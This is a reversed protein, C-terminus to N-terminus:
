NKIFSLVQNGNDKNLKIFYIGDNLAEINLKLDADSKVKSTRLVQGLTNYISYSDPTTESKITILTSSPNPFLGISAKSFNNTSLTGSFFNNSVGFGIDGETVLVSNDDALLEYFGNGSACCIGDGYTDFIEFKYCLDPSITFTATKTAYDDLPDQYPGGSDIVTNNEDLFQWTTEMPFNDLTLNLTITTTTTEQAGVNIYQSKVKNISNTGDSITLAVDYDGYTSYTHTVNQTTYDIIDDGDIDWSWSTAGSSNDTFNVTLNADCSDTEDAIFEANFATCILNDRSTQNIANIRALQQPSFITRCEKSAYSMLNLPDPQYFDNNADQTNGTYLCNIDVNIYNLQPDAATDCIFDGTSECNSGDVLEETSGFDNNDGHTHTLAFFHGVEHSLTSGNTACSNAMLINETITGGPFRAYGCLSSGSGSSVVADTFFINMVENVSHDAFLDAEDYTEYDYLNDDDIYNIGECLYFELAADAYISNMDAIADNLEIVTLGGTGDTQRIIHAKIAVSSLLTSNRSTLRQQLFQEELVKVRDKISDFYLKAEPTYVFGCDDNQSYVTGSYAFILLLIVASKLSKTFNM